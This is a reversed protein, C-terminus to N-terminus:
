GVRLSKNNHDSNEIEEDLVLMCLLVDDFLQKIKLVAFVFSVTEERTVEEGHRAKREREM